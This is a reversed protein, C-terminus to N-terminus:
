SRSQVSHCSPLATASDCVATPISPKPWPQRQVPARWDSAPDVSHTSIRFLGSKLYYRHHAYFFIITLRSGLTKFHIQWHFHHRSELRNAASHLRPAPSGALPAVTRDSLLWWHGPFGDLSGGDSRVTAPSSLWRGIQCHGPFGALYGGDSRVTTPSGTWPALPSIGAQPVQWVVHHICDTM